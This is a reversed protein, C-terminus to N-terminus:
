EARGVRGSKIRDQGGSSEDLFKIMYRKNKCADVLESLLDSVVAALDADAALVRAEYTDMLRTFAVVAARARKPLSEQFSASRLTEYLSAQSRSSEAVALDITSAGVGRAPVNIIRLLSVDDKRNM